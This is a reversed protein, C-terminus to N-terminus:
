SNKDQSFGELVMKNTHFIQCELLVFTYSSPFCSPVYQSCSSVGSVFLLGTNFLFIFDHHLVRQRVETFLSCKTVCAAKHSDLTEVLGSGNLTNSKIELSAPSDCMEVKKFWESSWECNPNRCSDVRCFLLREKM